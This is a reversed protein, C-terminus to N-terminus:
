VGILNKLISTIGCSHLLFMKTAKTFSYKTPACIFDYNTAVCLKNVM